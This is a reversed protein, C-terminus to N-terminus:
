QIVKQYIVFFHIVSGALVFLHFVPHLWERKKGMGCLVAGVLYFCCGVILQIFGGKDIEGLRPVASLLMLAGCIIYVAMTVAKLKEFFFMKSVVGFLTCGWALVFVALGHFPSIEYLTILACPTATGAILFPVTSHDAVRATRKAEGPKLGHYVASVTYVAIFTLAYIIASLTYRIGQAKSLLLAMATVGAVAGLAHTVCNCLDVKESYEIIEVDKNKM